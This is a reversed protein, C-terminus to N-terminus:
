PRPKTVVGNNRLIGKGLVKKPTKKQPITDTKTGDQKKSSKYLSATKQATSTFGHIGFSSAHFVGEPPKVSTEIEINPNLASKTGNGRKSPAGRQRM